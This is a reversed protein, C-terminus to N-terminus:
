ALSPSSPEEDTWPVDAGAVSRGSMARFDAEGFPAWEFARMAVMADFLEPDIGRGEDLGLLFALEEGGPKSLIIRKVGYRRRLEKEDVWGAADLMRGDPAEVLRHMPGHEESSVCRIPWGTVRHLAVAFADCDGSVYMHRVKLLDPMTELRDFEEDGAELRSAVEDAIDKITRMTRM